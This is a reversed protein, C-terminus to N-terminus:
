APLEEWREELKQMVQPLTTYEMEYRRGCLYFSGDLRPKPVSLGKCKNM